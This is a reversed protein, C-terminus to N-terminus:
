NGRSKGRESASKTQACAGIAGDETISSHNTEHSFPEQTPHQDPAHTVVPYIEHGQHQYHLSTGVAISILSRHYHLHVGPMHQRRPEPLTPELLVTPQNQKTLQKPLNVLTNLQTPLKLWSSNTFNPKYISCYPLPSANALRISLAARVFSFCMDFKRKSLPVFRLSCYSVLLYSRLLVSRPSQMAAYYRVWSVAFRCLFLVIVALQM